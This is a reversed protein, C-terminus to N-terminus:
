VIVSNNQKFKAYLLNVFETPRMSINEIVEINAETFLNKADNGCKGCVVASIGRKILIQACFIEATPSSRFHNNFKDYLKENAIDYIFFIDANGFTDSFRPNGDVYKVCIAVKM